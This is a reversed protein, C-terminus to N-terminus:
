TMDRTIKTAKRTRRRQFNQDSRRTGGSTLAKLLSIVNILTNFPDLLCTGRYQNQPSSTIGKTTRYQQNHGKMLKTIERLEQGHCFFFLSCTRKFSSRTRGLTHRATRLDCFFPSGTRKLSFRACCTILGATRMCRTFRRITHRGMGSVFWFIAQYCSHTSPIQIYVSAQCSSRAANNGGKYQTKTTTKSTSCRRLVHKRHHSSANHHAPKADRCGQQEVTPPSSWEAIVM